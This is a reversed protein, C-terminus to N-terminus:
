IRAPHLGLVPNKDLSAQPLQDLVASNAGANHRGTWPKREPRYPQASIGLEGPDGALLGAVLQRDIMWAVWCQRFNPHANRRKSQERSYQRQKPTLHALAAIEIQDVRM